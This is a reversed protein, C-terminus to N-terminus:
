LFRTGMGAVPFVAKKIPRMQVETHHFISIALYVIKASPYSVRMFCRVQRSRAPTLLANMSNSQAENDLPM